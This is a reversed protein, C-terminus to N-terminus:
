ARRRKIVVLAAASVILMIAWLALPASDGTEPVRTNIITDGNHAIEADEGSATQYTVIYGELPEEAVTYVATQGNKTVPLNYYRYWGYEDPEPTKKDVKEGNCYLTLTIEPAEEGDELGSWVKRVYVSTVKRNIIEGGDYVEKTKDAYDGYNKYITMYGDMYRETASYVIEEGNEDYKPLNEWRYVDDLREYDPQPSVREGNAHLTLDIEGGYGGEWIKTVSFDTSAYRNIVDYGNIETVYGAVQDETITYTIEQEQDNYKPLFAFSWAWNDEATVTVEDIEVGDALLNIVISEPRIGARNGDDVWTKAGSIHVVETNTLGFGNAVAIYGAVPEEIITYVIERGQDYKPVFGFDYSWDTTADVTKSAIEVGDALLHLVIETPRIGSRNRADQWVKVGAAALQLTHHSNTVDYGNVEATYGPVEDETITYKIERGAAYKPLETFSWTWGNDATVTKEAIEKGNALLNIVISEPRMMDRNNDDEWTKRGTVDILETVHTNTVDYGATTTTYGEVKEETITYTIEQGNAFKPMDAFSWKWGDAETVRMAAVKVGDALLNITIYVPRKGDQNDNDNWTKGGEIDVTETKHTNEVDFGNIKTTYGEVADETITYTIEQGGEFKPLNVFSWKWDRAATSIATRVETTEGNVTKWLRITISAPRIGDQDDNDKWTKQGSFEVTQTVHTNILDYQDIFTIYGEVADETITYAIKQGNKFEDLDAFVWKWGDKATVTKEAVEVGDALLNVTISEPRIGDQDDADMWYKVGSISVKGPTNNNTVNYGDIVTSYGPVADETITYTIKHGNEYVPLDTFTWKWGNKATVTVTELNERDIGVTKWLRITISEPRKGDQNNNDNWTKGGEIDMTEDTHKNTMAYGMDGYGAPIKTMDIATLTGDWAYGEVKDEEFGYVIKEGNEYVPLNRFIWYWNREANTTRYDGTRVGNRTLYVNLRVPRLGDNNDNDEWIKQGLLDITEAEHTNILDYQDVVTTYGEVKDETITYVIKEGNKYEDLGTFSWKWSDKATVTKEAIEVGDALLNVTISEPRIGDQDNNDVWYKMGSISVKGPTNSNIVDYGNIVTSYGPVADETITYTIEHGAEYMPLNEFKWSWQGNADPTIAKSAVKTHSSGVTAWLHITISEPRKGDQNNNDDWTKAGEITTTKDTHQNTLAYGMDGYGAPIKSMDISTLTGDWTYGEVPDEDFGYKIEVGNEYKPLNRFIWYWDRAPTATRVDGTREYKGTTTNLRTLYVNLRAPRMGDNNDNDEWIKQGLLDITEAEHTNILDYQDVVTTYGEVKDETITYVIKQGNKYEDLDTFSWKWGDKATVTKEAIEVGDALLNVTISDPRIGDQDNNDVWYKVGSISVKGPTNSNIANYGDIVTSYGPVADETITYIIKQGNEYVPLNEFKWSWQGNADPTIVKEGASSRVGGVTAWLRITISAPRKGDQNDADNWTKAGEIQTTENEHKNTLVFGADGYGAPIDAKDIAVTSVFTYGDIAEEEFGYVIEVGNEYKPLNRFIWYWERAPTATRVDGTRVGNKTLYVNLRAPRLGDNNDDDEWVKLGLLDITEVEHTNIVDYGDIQADYGAVADETITYAIEVGNSYKDLNTFSWAWGDAETVTKVAIEKDDALLRITISEPRIGDQDNSDVWYKAGSINVKDPTNHNIVDYGKVETSYGAVAEEAITYTIKQGAQYVPLDTFSWKWGDAATVKLTRVIANSSGVRAWLSITIKEPRQGDQNNNDDWTKSGSIDVKETLHTNIANYGKIETTYEAVADETITYIIEQGAEYKPLDVFSWKWDHAETVVSSRVESTKGSVTKWLRITISAPRKGDQDDNDVWTKEGSVSVTETEHTNILDFDDVVTTYEAVADETITYVIKVGDKYEPLETFSWKWDDAATVTKEAVEVGDALLNVTISAPRKGDQDDNDVWHKVGSISIESPKHTNTVDFGNIEASYGAVADETITYLIEKGDQYKDLDTFSWKWGDAATVKLTDVKQHSSGVTAWLNITIAEPRLGDQDNADNWTKGGSVSTKEVEHTNIANYGSIETTYEAVADETITYVIEQGAEYKPLDVFSWKWDHNKTVVSSRVESTKGNVTKWLRITISAPRKGDQDDNDVWTKEGSVSVTETEHTNILDFDDVVTTYEAVKDETITYVIKVGDKYEPLETFSWKWDNAATVTKEAVEVGNALLNVTISEPRKGDQDDNDVWHKAGSIAIESPKHTNTVDFGNIETSYGAVADETITYLIEKGDQYKDLDTFSWKWDDAATVKLTDVKQRSSGVTAWLNITIAEPRLGDQNNADNWTKGGSVSTKEVEHTNFANSGVIQSTYGEVADETITYVIEKGAEFKPLDVFSWKWDHSKTVVATRVQTTTGDVTKWLRIVISTPRKGDQNENDLWTKMGSVSVTDTEHTNILDTDDVVTGYGEVPEEAITYVIKVGAKYEDLGTFSWKWEDAATVTKHDVKVGDALLNVTISEPRIGDQNNNDVWHKMGSVAIKSPEHTNTVDYTNIETSYGTVVDETITYLIEKGDEYKPLEGFDWAWNDAATVVQHAVEMHNDKAASKVTKWLRITIETPRLGDQDNADVWTKSGAIEVTEDEHTNTLTYGYDGYGEPLTTMRTIVPGTYGSVAEEEFTYVHEQGDTYKPLDAFMWYWNNQANTTRYDGTREDDKLLYVTLYNPRLGDNNNNDNWVKLGLVDVTENTHTNTVDAGNVATTYGEVANETITYVHEHGDTYKPLDTFSWKWEDAETVTVSDYDKGDQLLNITISDPRKGDNNDDDLWTKSGSVSVMEDEHTNTLNMGSAVATYDEVTLEDVTYRIEKGGNNKPMGKFEWQWNDAATVTKRAVEVLDALLIVTIEDPRKGDNNDNDNWTKEGSLDVTAIEHDNILNHGEARVTYGAPTGKERVTYAIEKGTADAFPLNTFSYKWGNAGSIIHENIVAGDALLEVTIEAPRLGDRDNDDNWTKQGSVQTTRGTWTNTLEFSIKSADNTDVTKVAATYGPTQSEEITYEIPVGGANKPLNKFTVTQDPGYTNSITEEAVKIGNAYLYITLTFPRTFFFFPEGMWKKSVTIDVLEYDHRNILRQAVADYESTYGQPVNVEQVSYVITNGDADKEPLVPWIHYWETAATLTVVEGYPQGDALLQVQIADPRLGDADHGDNWVKELSFVTDWSTETTNYNYVHGEASSVLDDCIICGNYNGSDQSVDADPAIVHGVWTWTPLKVSDANPFSFVISTGDNNQESVEMQSGNIYELPANIDGADMINITTNVKATTDGIINISTVGELSEIKVNEGVNVTVVGNEDPTVVKARNAMTAQDAKIVEYAEHFNFFTDSVYIPPQGTWSSLLGNVRYQNNEHTVTNVSGVYLPPADPDHRSNYVGNPAMILGKIYSPPLNLGDSYGSMAGDLSGQILVSGMCHINMMANGFALVNYGNLFETLHYGSTYDNFTYDSVPVDAAQASDALSVCSFLMILAMLLSTMRNM